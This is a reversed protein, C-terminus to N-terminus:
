RNRLANKTGIFLERTHAMLVVFYGSCPLRVAAMAVKSKYFKAKESMLISRSLCFVSMGSASYDRARLMVVSESALGIDGGALIEVSTTM